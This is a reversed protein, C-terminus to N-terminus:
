SPTWLPLRVRGTPMDSPNTVFWIGQRISSCREFVGTQNFSGLMCTQYHQFTCAPMESLPVPGAYIDSTIAGRYLYKYGGKKWRCEALLINTKTAVFWCAHGITLHWVLLCLRYHPVVGGPMASLSAGCWFACGITICCELLCPRYHHLVGVLMASLSAGCWFSHFQSLCRMLFCPGYHPVVCVPVSLLSAGCWFAHGRLKLSAGCWYSQSITHCWM